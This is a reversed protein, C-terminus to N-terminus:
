ALAFTPGKHVLAQRYNTNDDHIDTILFFYRQTQIYNVTSDVRENELVGSSTFVFRERAITMLYERTIGLHLIKYCHDHIKRVQLLVPDFLLVKPLRKWRM